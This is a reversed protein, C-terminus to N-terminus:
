ALEVSRELLAHPRLDLLELPQSRSRRNREGCSASAITEDPSSDIRALWRRWTAINKASRRPQVLKTSATSGSSSIRTSPSNWSVIPRSTRRNSAVTPKMSPSPTWSKKLSGISTGSAASRATCSPM